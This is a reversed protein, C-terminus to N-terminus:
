DPKLTLPKLFLEREAKRRRILGMLRTGKAYVWRDFENAAGLYDGRNLKKRLTSKQLSGTGLNFTFSVLADFQNQNLPVSILDKVAHEAVALDGILLKEAFDQDIIKHHREEPKIVHGYGITNKGGACVYPTASFGEFNKILDIGSQSTRM